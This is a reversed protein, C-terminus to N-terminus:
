EGSPALIDTSLPRPSASILAPSTAPARREVQTKMFDIFARVKLPVYSRSPYVLWAATEFDTATVRHCPFVNVLSGCEFEGEVLWGPLLAVGMGDMACAKLASASSIVSKGNIPVETEQGGASRFRWNTRFGAIPFVLCNHRSLEEPTRLPAAREIYGPSACVYYKTQMLRQAILASDVPRGLRIAIDFRESVLDVIADSMHLEVTLEPHQNQFAALRPVVFTHGFSVSATVRLTGRPTGSADATLENASRLEGVLPEIRTFYNMGAETVSLKRTTRQFLRIGLEDELGSIARSVSSPDLNHERSAAAFSGQRVVDIFLELVSLEM